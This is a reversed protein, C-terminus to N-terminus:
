GSFEQPVVVSLVKRSMSFNQPTKFCVQGDVTLEQSPVSNLIGSSARFYRVESLDVHSGNIMHLAMKLFASKNRTALAYISLFGGTITADPAVPFPGAHFRGNGIVLQLCEFSTTETPLDLKVLFPEVKALARLVSVFYVARGLVRKAHDNLGEAILTTLGLTAVNLFQRNGITGMDVKAVKGNLIANCAVESGGVFGLDRAFANGTGLPLVGLVTKKEAFLHAVSGLTGDGGGVIVMPTGAKVQSAVAAQLRSNEAFQQADTLTIGLQVLRERVIAFSEEGRRSKSSVYLAATRPPEGYVEFM